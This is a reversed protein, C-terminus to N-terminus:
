QEFLRALQFCKGRNLELINVKHLLLYSFMRESKKSLGERGQESLNTM